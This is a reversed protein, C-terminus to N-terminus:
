FKISFFVNVTFGMYVINNEILEGELVEYEKYWVNTRNYLNFLTLGLVSNTEGGM